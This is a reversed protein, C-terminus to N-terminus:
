EKDSGTLLGFFVVEFKDTSDKALWVEDFVTKAFDLIGQINSLAAGNEFWAFVTFMVANENIEGNESFVEFGVEPFGAAFVNQLKENMCM